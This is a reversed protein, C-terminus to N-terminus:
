LQLTKAIPGTRSFRKYGDEAVGFQRYLTNVINLYSLYDDDVYTAPLEATVRMTAHDFPRGMPRLNKPDIMAHAGSAAVFDGDANLADLDTAGIILGKKIGQGAVLVTNTFPNHDTGSDDLAKGEQRLSRSFESTVLLTTVDGFTVGAAEDFPQKLFAFVGQLDAVIKAYVADQGRAQSVDHTDVLYDVSLLATPALGCRFYEGAAKLGDAMVSSETNELKYRSECPSSPVDVCLRMSKQMDAIGRAGLLGASFQGAGTSLAGGGQAALGEARQRIFRFAPSQPDPATATRFREALKRAIDPRMSVGSELSPTEAGDFRGEALFSLPYNAPKPFDSVFLRGGTASGTVAMAVNQPHGDFGRAMHVGNLLTFDTRLSALGAALPTVWTKGGVGDEWLHVSKDQRFNTCKGKDTFAVSRADFLYSADVGGKLLIHLFFQPHAGEALTRAASGFLCLSACAKGGLSVFHRRTVM